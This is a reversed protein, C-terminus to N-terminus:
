AAASAWTSSRPPRAACTRSDSASRPRRAPRCRRIASACRKSPSCNPIAPVPEWWISRQANAPRAARPGAPALPLSGFDCLARRALQHLLLRRADGPPHTALVERRLQGLQQLWPGLDRPLQEDIERRLQQALAPSEGATSIAVQLAGRSVVSAFFFDCNPPDDVSNAPIGRAVAERYVQANVEPANTAAIVIANGDLDTSAFPREIWELKGELTLQRIEPNAAPAVVRLQAGTQLLSAIKDLAVSGAGVVLARRGDLKLFIPLLGM